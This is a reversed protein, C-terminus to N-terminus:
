KPGSFFVFVNEVSTVYTDFSKDDLPVATTDTVVFKATVVASSVVCSIFLLHWMM